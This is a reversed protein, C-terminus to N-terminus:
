MSVVYDKMWAPSKRVRSPRSSTESNVGDSINNELMTNPQVTQERDNEIVLTKDSVNLPETQTVNTFKYYPAHILHWRNRRYIGDYTQILYSRPDDAKKLVKGYVRLDTVWVSENIGLEALDKARHRKDYNEAQIEKRSEEIGKTKHTDVVETLKSPLIPLHSRLKRSMLLESPSYGCELPTTRYSLLALYIDDQNKKLLNKAIKVAAEICGNSQSYFPSSFIVKFNYQEAFVKYENRFQTGNDSRVVDPIGYRCFLEKLKRIITSATLDSLPFIEFFRSYYDTVILYWIKYKFLDIAIKEWPRSPFNDKTFTEKINTREEVCNSCTRVLDQIQTSLGIWWVSMQARKRCKVIGQHGTHIFKLCKTQLVSPIVLRTGKLLFGENYSLDFRYQYYPALLLPLKDKRPWQTQCYEILKKCIVDENQAEAIQNLFEDKVPLSKIVLRVQAEVEHELEELNSDIKLPNRSLADAVVLDKGPTYKITYVYRMLRIRFRQLRPTLDDLRKTQLIQILPKHDTELVFHIGIIYEKFKECAWTLALAEREIQAYRTETLTLTRSAYSIIENIQKNNQMIIAGIGYSSADASIIIKKNPDYFALSPAAQLLHKIAKFSKIQHAGWVFQVNTKLLHNLPELIESKNPIFRASFNILGLLQLLEKRNTPEPYNQIAKVRDPDISMGNETIIHGLYRVKTVGIVCKKKNLTIGEEQLRGLVSRLIKDHVEMNPAYILIDDVHSVVGTLNKLINTFKMIFYEPACSIGFPLRKFMFRGFPTIFTTLLQSKKKLPIQYFGSNADLKSFYKSGVLQAITNELKPIPYYPREVNKNLETYDGCLRVSDAKRVVVIPSVWDTCQEVTEIINLKILRNIELELQKLLPLPVSRPVSQVFPKADKKLKIEIEDKFRGIDKFIEPFEIEVNVKSVLKTDANVPAITTVNNLSKPVNLTIINLNVIETRGLIPIKLNRIVFCNAKHYKNCYELVLNTKGKIELKRGDPGSIVEKTPVYKLNTNEIVKDPICTVDAGTDVLFLVRNSVQKINIPIFWQKEQVEISNITLPGIFHDEEDVMTVAKIDKFRCMKNWHGKKKCNSCISNRAPCRNRNHISLGCYECTKSVNTSCANNTPGMKTEHSEKHKYMLNNRKNFKNGKKGIANLQNEGQKEQRLITNQSKQIEAQKAALIAEELKLKSQLQLRESTHTDKMGVVVRDRILDDKLNGYECNDALTHLDTIFSDITEDPKQVRSNFKFREFIINRKPIFFDDFQKLTDDYKAETKFQLLIQESEEGMIYLLIDKKEEDEKKSLGSVAMYRLFRKKWIPWYGPNSFTFKEPPAVHILSNSTITNSGNDEM